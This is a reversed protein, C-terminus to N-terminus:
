RQFGEGNPARGAPETPPTTAYQTAANAALTAASLEKQQRLKASVSFLQAKIEDTSMEKQGAQKRQENEADIQAFAMQLQRDKDAESADFQQTQALKQQEGQQKQQTDAQRGQVMIKAATVRPDEPPQRQAMAQKEQESYSFTDPDFRRSKLFETMAKEPSMGYAPNLCLQIIQVMEQAQLDREVLATSGRAVIQFDGKMDDDDGYEMLWAYYRRVHPETISSDFLRAIRRLVSNANNNLITLGGVTDPASGQQGQLLMPLGTVDEAMKMGYQIIAMLENQLMPIVVSFVPANAGPPADENETWLKLPVIEWVGDEPEVGRRIVIQPGAALGANDMLNRTAAVVIRQATRMQRAVGMGWPMGPRRKWPIVDYPYEGNDLPNLSAKIVHNNVMTILAPFSKEQPLGECDCGAAELEAVTIIGYYYWIEFLDKAAFANSLLNRNDAEQQRAPGEKLCQDISSTLYGPLGKMDELQRRTQRDREFVYSGNHISEGCAPDPFLDWPDVRKSAPKIEEVIILQHVGTQPDQRWECSRRKVPVPGKIVGSGLKAADDIVKRMEAHYQCEDMWDEIQTQARGAKRAAEDKMADFRQKAQSLSMVVGEYEVQPEPPAPPQAPQGPAPQGAPAAPQQPPQQQGMGLMNGLRQMMGPQQPPQSPQAAQANQDPASQAMQQAAQALPKAVLGAKALQAELSEFMDPIPTPQIAFNRDDTPLLMDGVRAAAADVYPQTINPFVTSGTVPVRREDINGGGQMPKAAITVYEHRNADDYGQYFEEDSIMDQEIGITAKASVADRRKGALTSALANLINLRHQEEDSLEVVVYDRMDQMSM